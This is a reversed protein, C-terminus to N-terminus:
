SIDSNKTACAQKCHQKQNAECKKVGWTNKNLMYNVHIAINCTMKGKSYFVVLEEILVMLVVMLVSM